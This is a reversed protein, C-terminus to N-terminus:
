VFSLEIFSTFLMDAVAVPDSLPGSSARCMLKPCSAAWYLKMLLSQPLALM